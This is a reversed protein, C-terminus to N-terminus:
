IFRIRVLKVKRGKLIIRKPKEIETEEEEETPEELTPLSGPTTEPHLKLEDWIKKLEGTWGPARLIFIDRKDDWVIEESWKRKAWTPLKELHLKVKEGYTTLGEFDAEKPPLIGKVVTGDRLTAEVYFYGAGWKTAPLAIAVWLALAGM